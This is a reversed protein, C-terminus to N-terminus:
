NTSSKFISRFSAPIKQGSEGIIYKVNDQNNVYKGKKKDWVVRATQKHNQVKDDNFDIDFAANNVSNTFGSNISLQQDQIVSKPAFSPLYNDLDKYTTKKTKGQNLVKDGDEFNRMLEEENVQYGIENHGMEGDEEDEDGRGNLIEDELRHTLGFIREQELLKKKDNARAQIPAIQRRRKNMLDILKDNKKSFEFVTEKSYRNKLKDLFNEKEIELNKGFILNQDEWGINILEKSRRISETSPAM